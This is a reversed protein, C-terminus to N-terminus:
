VDSVIKVGSADDNEAWDYYANGVIKTVRAAADRELEINIGRGDEGFAFTRGPQVLAGVWDADSNAKSVLTSHFVPVNLFTGALGNVDPQNGDLLSIDMEPHSFVSGVGTGAIIDATVDSTQTPHTIFVKQGRVNAVSAVALAERFIEPTADVTTSGVSQSLSAFLALGDGEIKELIGDVIEEIIEEFTMASFLKVRDSPEVLIVAESVQLTGPSSQAYQTNSPATSESGATAATTGRKRLKVSDSGRQFMVHKALPILCIASKLAKMVESELYAAVNVGDSFQTENAM